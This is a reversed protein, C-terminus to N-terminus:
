RRSYVANCSYMFCAYDVSQAFLGRKPKYNRATRVVWTDKEVLWKRRESGKEGIINIPEFTLRRDTKHKM